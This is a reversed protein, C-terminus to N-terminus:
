FFRCPAGYGYRVVFLDKHGDNDVDAFIGANARDIGDLGAPGTVDVFRLKGPEETVNRYLRCRKGDAFFLDPRGDNDYDVVSLGSGAHQIVGFKLPTRTPDLHPDREHRFDIGASGPPVELFGERTGAVRVGEVLEDRAIRWAPDADPGTTRVL